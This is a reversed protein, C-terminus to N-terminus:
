SAAAVTATYGAAEVAAVLHADSATAPDRQVHAQGSALDVEVAAVGPVGRLAERVHRVCGNCTMGEVRLTTLM